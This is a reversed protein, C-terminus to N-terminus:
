LDGDWSEPRGSILSAPIPPPLLHDGPRVSPRKSEPSEAFPGSRRRLLLRRGRGPPAPQQARPQLLREVLRRINATAVADPTNDLGSAIATQSYIFEDISFNLSIQKNKKM